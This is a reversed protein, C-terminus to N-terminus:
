KRFRSYDADCYGGTYVTRYPTTKKHRAMIKKERVDYEFNCHSCQIRVDYENILSTTTEKVETTKQLTVPHKISWEYSYVDKLEEIKSAVIRSSQTTYSDKLTSDVKHLTNLKHCYACRLYLIVADALHITFWASIIFAVLNPSLEMTYFVYLFYSFMLTIRQIFKLQRNSIREKRYLTYYFALVIITALISPAFLDCVGILGRDQWTLDQYSNTGAYCGPQYYAITNAMWLDCLSVIWKMITPITGGHTHDEYGIMKENDFVAHFGDSLGKGATMLGPFYAHLLGQDDYTCFSAFGIIEEVEKKSKGIMKQAKEADVVRHFKFTDNHRAHNYYIIIPTEPRDESPWQYNVGRVGDSTEILCTAYRKNEPMERFYGLIKIPTGMPINVSTGHDDVEIYLNEPATTETAFSQAYECSIRKLGWGSKWGYSGWPLCCIVFVVVGSILLWRVHAKIYDKLYDEM